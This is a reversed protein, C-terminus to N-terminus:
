IFTVKPWLRCARHPTKGVNEAVACAPSIVSAAQRRLEIEQAPFQPPQPTEGAFRGLRHFRHRETRGVQALYTQGRCLNGQRGRPAAPATRDIRVTLTLGPM